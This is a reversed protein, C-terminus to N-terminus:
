ESSRLPRGKELAEKRGGILGGGRRKMCLLERKNEREHRSEKTGKGASSSSQFIM